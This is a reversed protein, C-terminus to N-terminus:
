KEPAKKPEPVYAYKGDAVQQIQFGPKQLGGLLTQFSAKLAELDKAAKDLRLVANDIKTSDLESLVPAAPAKAEPQATKEVKVASAPTGPAQAFGVGGVLLTTIFVLAIKM